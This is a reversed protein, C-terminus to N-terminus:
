PVVRFAGPLLPSGFEARSATPSRSYSTHAEPSTRGATFDAIDICLQRV